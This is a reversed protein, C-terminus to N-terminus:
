LIFTTWYFKRFLIFTNYPLWQPLGIHTISFRRRGMKFFSALVAFNYKRKGTACTEGEKCAVVFKLFYLIILSSIINRVPRVAYSIIIITIYDLRNFLIIINHYVRCCSSKRVVPSCRRERMTTTTSSQTEARRRCPRRSATRDKTTDAGPFGFM